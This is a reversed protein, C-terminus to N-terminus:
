KSMYRLMHLISKKWAAKFAQDQVNNMLTPITMEAVIGIIGLTILVEALTFALRVLRGSSSLPFWQTQSTLSGTPASSASHSEHDCPRESILDQFLIRIVKFM